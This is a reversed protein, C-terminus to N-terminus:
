RSTKPHQSNEKVASMDTVYRVEVVEQPEDKDYFLFYAEQCGTEKSPVPMTALHLRQERM